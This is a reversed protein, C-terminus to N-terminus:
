RKFFTAILAISILCSLVVFSLRLTQLEAVFGLFAPGILFGVNSTGAIFSVGDATRIDKINSALRYVEPVIISFGLGIVFFGPM